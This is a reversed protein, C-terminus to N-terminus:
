SSKAESKVRDGPEFMNLRQLFTNAGTSDDLHRENHVPVHSFELGKVFAMGGSEKMASVM